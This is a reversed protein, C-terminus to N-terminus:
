RAAPLPLSELAWLSLGLLTLALIPLVAALLARRRGTEHIVSFGLVQLAIGWIVYIWTGVWPIPYACLAVSGYCVVQFSGRFGATSHKLGGVVALCLHLISSGIFLFLTLFLGGLPLGVLLGVLLGILCGGISTLSLPIWDLNRDGVSLGFPFPDDPRSGGSWSPAWDVLSEVLVGLTGVLLIVAVAFLLPDRWRGGKRTM